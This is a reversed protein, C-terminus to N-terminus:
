IASERAGNLVEPRDRRWERAKEACEAARALEARLAFTKGSNWDAADLAAITHRGLADFLVVVRRTLATIEELQFEVSAKATSPKGAMM